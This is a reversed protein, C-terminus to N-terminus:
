KSTDESSVKQNVCDQLVEDDVKISDQPAYRKIPKGKRDVLFYTFNWKIGNTLFGPLANTLYKFVPHIKSGVGHVKNMLIFNESYKHVFNKIEEKTNYEQDVMLSCPFILIVLDKESYTNLLNTLEKYSKDALGCKSAANVILMVKGRYKELFYDNGEIDRVQIDYISNPSYETTMFPRSTFEIIKQFISCFNM